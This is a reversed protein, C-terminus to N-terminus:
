PGARRTSVGHPPWVVPTPRDRVTLTGDGLSGNTNDGWCYAVSATTVGCSYGAGSSIGRFALGGSVASPSSRHDMGGDGVAGFNYGWCYAAGSPTVGCITEFGAAISDFTLNGNVAIPVLRRSTGQDIGFTGDGVTGYFNNGWCYTKGETTLGCTTQTAAALSRFTLGGVVAVPTNSSAFGGNGLQGVGGLGWCYAAGNITLACVYDNGAVVRQFTMGVAAPRPTIHTGTTGDGFAGSASTGWCWASGNMAIGCVQANGVALSKFTLGGTVSVPHLRRTTTSDGLEGETNDGWCYAAGGVALGCGFGAVQSVALSQFTIGGAVAVPVSNNISTADNGLEGNGNYGWCYAAGATTLACTHSGAVVSAIVPTAASAVTITIGAQQEAAGTASATLTLQYTGPALAAAAAITLTSSDSQTTAAVTATLGAPAGAVLYSIAGVLGGSRTARISTTAASGAPVSITTTGITLAFGAAPPYGTADTATSDCGVFM